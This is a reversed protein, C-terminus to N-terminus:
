RTLEQVATEVSERSPMVGSILWQFKCKLSNVGVLLVPLLLLNLFTATALGYAMSIAMPIVMKAEPENSIILPAIGVITTLSTLVIPRFRSVCTDYIAAMFDKRTKLEENFTSILVISDNVMVGMLAVMGLYSPMDLAVGHIWHGWGVGIFGFPVLTFILFAQAFSRFTFIVIAFLLVLIVPAILIGSSKAKQLNEEHGGYRFRLGPYKAKLDPLIHDSIESNIESMNVTTNAADAEVTIERQSDLHNIQVLNREYIIDAVDKLYYEGGASTRIRMNELNGVSSRENKPYRVWVKVVDIGRQLRQVEKGYFGARVQSSLSSQTLGLKYASDKLKLKIERMGLEDNDLVNMLGEMKSLRSKFENKALYLDELNSSQLSISVAKGFHSEQTYSLLQAQPIEGVKDKLLNSFETSIFDRKQTGLLYVKLKGVNSATINLESGTIIPDGTISKSQFEKGVEFAADEIRQMYRLTENEPTGAPMELEVDIYDNNDVSSDGTRIIGGRLGGVTMALLGISLGVTVLKNNLCFRILPEYTWKRLYSVAKTSIKEIKSEKKDARLAKSHVVHAPLILFAEVLSFLLAFIVVFALERFFEGIIGDIFFFASFAVITTLVASFVAPMVELTGDIGAQLASKGKEYHQFINECIVIGDDVLIGIVIIMGFLSIRNLTLGYMGAIMFMGMFSIPIGIAVWFSLRHNLFLSLFLLVLLFGVIGNNALINQMVKISSSNDQLVNLKVVDHVLNYKAAYENIAESIFLIDERSTQTISVKIAPNGDIYIRNPEEDWKDTVVAVDSLHVTGGSGQARVVIDKFGEAYYQKERIRIRLEENEGRISGGTQEINAAAVANYIEDTTIDYAKLADENVSVEIEEDPFGDLDVQSIGDIARLDNEIARAYVKLDKLDIDGSLSMSIALITFEKKSVSINEVAAPFSSIGDVANKVDQLAINPDYGSELDVMISCFNEKSSSTLKEVGSIGKLNDEIKLAVGKEVEEPSAGPYTATITLMGPDIQPMVSSNLSYLGFIGLLIFVGALLNGAFPYKLFYNILSKM